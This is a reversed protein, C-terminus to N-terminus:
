KIQLTKAKRKAHLPENIDDLSFEYRDLALIKQYFSIVIIKNHFFTKIKM